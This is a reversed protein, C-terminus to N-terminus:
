VWAGWQDVGPARVSGCRADKSDVHAAYAKIVDLLCVSGLSGEEPYHTWEKLEPLHARFAANEGEAFGYEPAMDYPELPEPLRRSLLARM